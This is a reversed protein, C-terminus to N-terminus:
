MSTDVPSSHNSLILTNTILIPSPSHTMSNTKVFKVNKAHESMSYTKKLWKVCVNIYM